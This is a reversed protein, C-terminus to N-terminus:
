IPNRRAPRTWPRERRIRAMVVRYGVEILLRELKELERRDRGVILIKVM